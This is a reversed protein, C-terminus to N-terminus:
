SQAPSTWCKVVCNRVSPLMAVLQPFQITNGNVETVCKQQLKTLGLLRSKQRRSRSIAGCSLHTMTISLTCM